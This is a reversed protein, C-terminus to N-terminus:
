ALIFHSLLCIVRLASLQHTVDVVHEICYAYATSMGSKLVGEGVSDAVLRDINPEPQHELAGSQHQPLLQSLSRLAIFTGRRLGM